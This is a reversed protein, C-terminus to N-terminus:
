NAEPALRGQKAGNPPACNGPPCPLSKSPEIERQDELALERRIRDGNLLHHGNRTSQINRGSLQDQVLRRGAKILRLDLLQELFKSLKPLAPQPNNKNGM